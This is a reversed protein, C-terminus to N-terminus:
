LRSPPAAAQAQADNMDDDSHSDKPSAVNMPVPSCRTEVWLLDVQDQTLM